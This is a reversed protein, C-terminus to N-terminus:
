TAEKMVTQVAKKAQAKTVKVSTIKQAAEAAIETAIDAISDLAEKKALNINDEAKQIREKAHASFKADKKAALAALREDNKLLFKHANNHAKALAQEYNEKVDSVEKQLREARTLDDERQSRRMDLVEGIKPLVFRSMLFLLLLFWVTLWFVQSPYTSIDLQPFGTTGSPAEGHAHEAVVDSAFAFSLPSTVLSTLSLIGLLKPRIM